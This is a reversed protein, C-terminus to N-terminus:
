RITSLSPAGHRVIPAESRRDTHEGRTRGSGVRRAIAIKPAHFFHGRRLRKQSAQELEGRDRTMPWVVRIAPAVVRRIAERRAASRAFFNEV